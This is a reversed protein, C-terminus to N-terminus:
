RGRRGPRAARGGAGAHEHVELLQAQREVLAVRRAAHDRALGGVDLREGVQEVYPMTVSTVDTSSSRRCRRDHQEHEVQLERERHQGDNGTRQSCSASTGCGSRARTGRSARRPRARSRASRRSGRRCGPRARTGARAACGPSRRGGRRGSGRAGVDPRLPEGRRVPRAHLEDAPHRGRDHQEVAAPERDVACHADAHEGREQEVQAPEELRHLLEALEVVQELGRGGASSFSDPTSSSAGVRRASGSAGPRARRRRAARQAEVADVERVALAGTSCRGRDRCGPRGSPRARRRSRRPCSSSRGGRPGTRPGSRPGPAREVADVQAVEVSASRRRAITVTVCSFKRNEPMPRRCCRGRGAPRAADGLDLGRGRAIPACSNM